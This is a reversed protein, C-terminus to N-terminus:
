ALMGFMVYLQFLGVATGLIAGVLILKVEDEEFVTFTPITALIPVCLLSLYHFHFSFLIFFLYVSAIVRACVCAFMFSCESKLGGPHLVAEFEAPPLASM